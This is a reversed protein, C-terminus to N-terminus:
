RGLVIDRIRLVVDKMPIQYRSFWAEVDKSKPM